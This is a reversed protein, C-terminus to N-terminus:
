ARQQLVNSYWRCGASLTAPRRCWTANVVVLHFTESTYGVDSLIKLAAENGKVAAIQDDATAGDPVDIAVNGEAMSTMVGLVDQFQQDTLAQPAVGQWPDAVSDQSSAGANSLSILIAGVCAHRKL